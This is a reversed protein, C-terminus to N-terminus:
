EKHIINFVQDIFKGLHIPSNAQGINLSITIKHKPAYLLLSGYAGSHGYFVKDRIKYMELGLGYNGDYMATESIDFMNELTEQKNFLKLDFLAQIFVGMEEVTSVIGGGAWEFSTNIRKTINIRNMYSDTLKGVGKPKEYHEFYTNKLNLPTIIRERIVEPLPKQLVEEIIFGLLMYNIDSYHHGKGPLNAPKQNLKYQFYKGYIEQATYKRKPNLFASIYFRIEADNFIDLVGSTHNLLMKISISDQYKNKNYIHLDKYRIFELDELYKKIPDNINIKKEEELQLVITAVITKTISAIKYQYSADIKTDNRGVVGIGEKFEYGTNANKTYLLFNCIRKKGNCNISENMLQKLQSSKEEQGNLLITNCVIVLILLYRM